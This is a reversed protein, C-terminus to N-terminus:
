RKSSVMAEEHHYLKDILDKYKKAVVQRKVKLSATLEGEEISFDNPLIAFNRVREYDALDKSKGTIEKRIYQKLEELCSLESYNNFSWGKDRAFHTVAQEDLTLISVLYKERDGFIVAQNVFPVCRLAAEVRQPAINKGAANIILHKKRDTIKLYGDADLEGIDGTLFWGDETFAARTEEEQKYYGKFISPGKFCIEGDEAIKIELGKLTPGVTGLKIRNPLNVNTAATTETLGYGECTIIGVANFFEITDPTSPAGGCILIRLRQGVRKRLNKLVLKQGSLAKNDTRFGAKHRPISAQSNRQWSFYVM